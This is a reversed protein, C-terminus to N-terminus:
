VDRQGLWGLILQLSFPISESEKIGKPNAARALPYHGALERKTYLGYGARETNLTPGHQRAYNNCTGNAHNIAAAHRAPRVDLM